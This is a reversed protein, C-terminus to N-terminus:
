QVDVLDLHKMREFHTIETNTVTETLNRNVYNATARVNQKLSKTSQKKEFIPAQVVGNKTSRLFDIGHKM